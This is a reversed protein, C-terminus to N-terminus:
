LCLLATLGRPAEVLGRDSWQRAQNSGCRERPRSNMPCLGMREHSMAPPAM